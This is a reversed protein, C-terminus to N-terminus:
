RQPGWLLSKELNQYFKMHQRYDYVTMTVGETTTIWKKMDIKDQESYEPQPKPAFEEEVQKLINQLEELSFNDYMKWFNWSGTDAMGGVYSSISYKRGVDSGPHYSSIKRIIEVKDM